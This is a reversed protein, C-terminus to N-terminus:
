SAEELYIDAPEMDLVVWWDDEGIKAVVKFKGSELEEDTAREGSEGQVLSRDAIRSGSPLLSPTEDTVIRAIAQRQAEPDGTPALALATLIADVLSAGAPDGVDSRWTIVDM